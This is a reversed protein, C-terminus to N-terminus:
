IKLEHAHQWSCLLSCQNKLQCQTLYKQIPFLDLVLISVPNKELNYATKGWIPKQTWSIKFYHQQFTIIKRFILIKHQNCLIFISQYWFAEL